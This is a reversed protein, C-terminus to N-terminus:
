WYVTQCMQHWTITSGSFCTIGICCCCPSMGVCTPGHSLVVRVSNQCVHYWIVTGSNCWTSVGVVVQCVSVLLTVHCYWQYVVRVCTIHVTGGSCWTIRVCWCCASVSVCATGCHCYWRYVARVCTIGPSLVVAVGHLESCWCCASMSVCATGHSLVVPVGHLESVGVVLRCVSVLLAM